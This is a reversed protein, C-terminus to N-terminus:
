PIVDQEMRQLDGASISSLGRNVEDGYDVAEEEGDDETFEEDEGVVNSKRTTGGRAKRGDGEEGDKLKGKVGLAGKKGNNQAFIADFSDFGKNDSYSRGGSSGSSYSAGRTAESQERFTEQLGELQIKFESKIRPVRFRILLQPLSLVLADDRSNASGGGYSPPREYSPKNYSSTTAAGTGAPKVPDTRPKYVKSGTGQYVRPELSNAARPTYTRPQGPAQTVAQDGRPSYVKPAAPPPPPISSGSGTSTTAAAVNVDSTVTM